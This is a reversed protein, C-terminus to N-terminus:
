YVPHKFSSNKRKNAKQSCRRPSASHHLHQHYQPKAVEKKHKEMLKWNKGDRSVTFTSTKKEKLNFEDILANLSHNLHALMVNASEKVDKFNTLMKELAIIESDCNGASCKAVTKIGSLLCELAIWKEDNKWTELKVPQLTDKEFAEVESTYYVTIDPNEDLKHCCVRYYPEQPVDIRDILYENPIIKSKQVNSEELLYYNGEKRIQVCFNSNEDYIQRALQILCESSTVISGFDFLNWFYSLQNKHDFLPLPTQKAINGNTKRQKLLPQSMRRDNIYLVLEFWAKKENNDGSEISFFMKENPNGLGLKRFNWQFKSAPEIISWLEQLEELMKVIEKNECKSLARVAKKCRQKM